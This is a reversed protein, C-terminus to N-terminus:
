EYQLYINGTTLGSSGPTLGWTGYTITESTHFKHWGSNGGDWQRKYIPTDWFPLGITYHYYNAGAGHSSILYHAWGSRGDFEGDSQYYTFNTDGFGTSALANSYTSSNATNATNAFNANGNDNIRQWGSWNGANVKNRWYNNGNTCYAFQWIWNHANDHTGGDNVKVILKGYIGANEPSGNLVESSGFSYEGDTLATNFDSIYGNYHKQFESAHCGDVTDSNSASTANGILDGELGNQFMVRGTENNISLPRLNNWSGYPDNQNTLLIYTNAGDNRLITGYNPNAIRFGNYSTSQIEDTTRLAGTIETSGSLPIYDHTHESNKEDIMTEVKNLLNENYHALGDLNLVKM